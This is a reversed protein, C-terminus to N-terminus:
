RATARSEQPAFLNVATAGAAAPRAARPLAAAARRLAIFEVRVPQALRGAIADIAADTQAPDTAIRALEEAQQPTFGRRRWADVARAALGVVDGSLGQRVAGVTQQAANGVDNDLVATRSGANPQVFQANRNQALRARIEGTFRDATEPGFAARLNDRAYPSTALDDLTGLSGGLRQGGLTDLIEQRIAIQNAQRAQAPLSNLWAAYDTPDTSFPDMRNEGRAVEIARSQSAYAERAPRLEEVNALTADLQDRRGLAGRARNNNGRRAFAAGRERAAIVLRNITGASIRPLPGVGGEDGARLLRDLEVQRGWDQNEIADVRARAIISRGSADSLMDRVADPVEIPEADFQAYNREAEAGRLAEMEDAYQTATRPDNNLRRAASMSAPKTTAAVEAARDTLVEGAEEGRVGVARIMRRGREGAVDTLTPEVGAARMEAARARMAAPDMRARVGAAEVPSPALRRAPRSTPRPPVPAPRTLTGPSRAGMLATNIDGAVTAEAEEGYVRRPAEKPIEFPSSRREYVPLGAGIAARAAPRAVTADVAGQIPSAALSFLNAAMRPGPGLDLPNPAEGRVVRQAKDYDAKTDDALKGWAQKIPRTFDDVMSPKKGILGRRQAEEYAAKQEPPLLGRRYAEALLEARDAM